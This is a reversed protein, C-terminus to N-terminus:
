YSFCVEFEHAHDGGGHEAYDKTEVGEDREHHCHMAAERASEISGHAVADEREEEVPGVVAPISAESVAHELERGHIDACLAHPPPESSFTERFLFADEGCTFFSM